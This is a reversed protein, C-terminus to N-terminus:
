QDEKNAIEYFTQGKHRKIKVKDHDLLRAMNKALEIHNIGTISSLDEITVPRRQMVDLIRRDIHRHAPQETPTSVSVVIEAQEGFLKKVHKLTCEPVPEAWSELPPRVVTNIQVKNPKIHDIAKKLDKIEQESDNINKILMVELWIEGGFNKSFSVLSEVIRNINITKNARHIKKFTNNHTTCLTPVIVSSCALDDQVDKKDMLSSNTLVAIPLATMRRVGHILAGLEAHLTPEGSGSFTIYDITNKQELAKKIEELIDNTPTYVKRTATLYTTRGIQCYICNFSCHKFPIIDVGLSFGLRRSPVPGYIYKYHM